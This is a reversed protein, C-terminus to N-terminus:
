NFGLERLFENVAVDVEERRTFPMFHDGDEIACLRAGPVTKALLEGHAIPVNTDATGHVVLTPVTIEGIPLDLAAFQRSDNLMGQSRLSSPWTSWVLTRIMEAKDADQLVYQRIAPNRIMMKVFGRAGLVIDVTSFLLWFVFDPPMSPPLTISQTVTEMAIFATTKQPYKAAFELASPGGGSAAIVIVSEINLTDLLAAYARAQDGPTEGVELPTALYGPRSPTLIRYGSKGPPAHDYGGPTGHLFLVVPGSEGNLLYEIPGVDTDAIRSASKLGKIKGSRWRLYKIGIVLGALFFVTLAVLVLKLLVFLKGLSKTLCADDRRRM